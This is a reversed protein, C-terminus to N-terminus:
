RTLNKDTPAQRDAGASPELEVGDGADTKGSRAKEGTQAKQSGPEIAKARKGRCGGIRTLRPSYPPGARRHLRAILATEDM